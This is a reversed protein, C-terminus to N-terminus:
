DCRELYGHLVFKADEFEYTCTSLTLIRDIPGPVSQPSFYSRRCVADVWAGQNSANLELEWANSDNDSVYGSFFRITYVADSTLILGTPHADYFEQSKYNMLGTFMTGNKLHHGYVISHTDALDPHCRYDMFICGSRSKKGDFLHNLYYENDEGQVIPYSIETGELCIWGVVDPNIASLAAFDVQPLVIEEAPETVPVTVAPSHAPEKPLVPAFSVYQELAEYRDESQRDDALTKLLLSGSLLFVAGAFLTFATRIHQKM